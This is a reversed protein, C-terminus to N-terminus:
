LTDAYCLALIMVDVKGIVEKLASMCPVDRVLKSIINISVCILHM